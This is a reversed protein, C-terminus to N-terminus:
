ASVFIGACSVVAGYAFTMREHYLSEVLSITIEPPLNKEHVSVVPALGM